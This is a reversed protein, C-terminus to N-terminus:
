VGRERTWHSRAQWRASMAQIMGNYYKTDVEALLEKLEVRHEHTVDTTSCHQSYFSNLFSPNHVDQEAICDLLEPTAEIGAFNLINQFAATFQATSNMLDNLLVQTCRGELKKCVRRGEAIGALRNWSYGFEVRLGQEESVRSLYERLSEDGEVAMFDSENSRATHKTKALGMLYLQRQVRRKFKEASGKALIGRETSTIKDYLYSSLLFDMPDRSFHILKVPVDERLWYDNKRFVKSVAINDGHARNICSAVRGSLVYGTKRHVLFVLKTVNADFREDALELAMAEGADEAAAIAADASNAALSLACMSSNTRHEVGGRLSRSARGESEQLAMGRLSTCLLLVLEFRWAM